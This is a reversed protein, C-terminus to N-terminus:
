RSQWGTVQHFGPKRNSSCIGMERRTLSALRSSNQKGYPTVLYHGNELAVNAFLIHPREGPNEMGETMIGEIVPRYLRTHGMMKLIAPRVFMEFGVMASVPNGPLGFIPRGNLVAFLVPKGPKMCVKWFVIDGGVARIVEQVYDRDGVSVGGTTILFDTSIGDMIKAQLADRVDGAIGLMVPRAGADLIQAAVSYSNSNIIKGSVPQSGAPLLEDGTALVSINPKGYVALSTRGISVLLGIEQPRLLTGASIIREGGRVDTGKRRVHAGKEVQKALCIADDRCVVNELPVITDCGPPIPAGTMIRAAEGVALPMNRTAGAPIFDVVKYKGSGAAAYQFAYGDMASCDCSPINRTACIDECSVAWPM